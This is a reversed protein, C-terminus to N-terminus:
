RLPNAKTTEKRRSFKLFLVVSKEFSCSLKWWSILNWLLELDHPLFTTDQRLSLRPFIGLELYSTCNKRKVCVLRRNHQLLDRGFHLHYFNIFILLLEVKKRIQTNVTKAQHKIRDIQRQPPYTPWNFLVLIDYWKYPSFSRKM